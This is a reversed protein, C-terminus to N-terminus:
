SHQLVLKGVEAATAAIFTAGAYSLEKRDGYGFLVGISDLGNEKAGIIDHKRDGIM